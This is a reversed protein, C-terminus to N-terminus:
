GARGLRAALRDSVFRMTGVADARIGGASDRVEARAEAGQDDNKIIAATITLVEGCRISRLFRVRLETTMSLQDLLGYVAWALAEDLLLSTVGGHLVPGYGGYEMPPTFTTVVTDGDREFILHLGRANDPGCVFCTSFGFRRPIETRM